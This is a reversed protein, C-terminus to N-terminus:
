LSSNIHRGCRLSCLLDCSWAWCWHLIWPLSPFCYVWKKPCDEADTLHGKERRNHSNDPSGRKVSVLLKTPTHVGVLSKKRVSGPPDHGREQGRWGNITSWASANNSKGEEDTQGMRYCKVTQVLQIRSHCSSRIFIYPAPLFWKM